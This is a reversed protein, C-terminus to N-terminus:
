LVGETRAEKGCKGGGGRWGGKIMRVWEDEQPEVCVIHRELLKLETVM